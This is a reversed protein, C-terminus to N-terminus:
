LSLASISFNSGTFGRCVGITIFTIAITAFKYLEAESLSILIALTAMRNTFQVRLQVSVFYTYIYGHM